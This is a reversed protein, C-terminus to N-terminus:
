AAVGASAAETGCDPQIESLGAPLGGPSPTHKTLSSVSVGRVQVGREFYEALRELM